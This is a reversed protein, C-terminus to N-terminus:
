PMTGRRKLRQHAAQRSIGLLLALETPSTVDAVEDDTLPADAIVHRWGPLPPAPPM